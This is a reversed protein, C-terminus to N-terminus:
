KMDKFDPLETELEPEANHHLPLPDIPPPNLETIIINTRGGRGNEQYNSKQTNRRQSRNIFFQVIRKAFNMKNKRKTKTSPFIIKSDFNNDVVELNSKRCDLKNFKKMITTKWKYNEIGLRNRMIFDTLFVFWGPKDPLNARIWGSEDEYWDLHKVIEYDEDDILVKKNSNSLPLFM